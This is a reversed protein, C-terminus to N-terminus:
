RDAQSLFPSLLGNYFLHNRSPIYQSGIINIEPHLVTKKLGFSDIRPHFSSPFRLRCIGFYGLLHIQSKVNALLNSLKQSLKFGPGKTIQNIIYFITYNIISISRVVIQCTFCECSFVSLAKRFHVLICIYKHRPM